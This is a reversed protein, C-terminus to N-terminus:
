ESAYKKFCHVLWRVDEEPRGAVPGARAEEKKEKAAAGARPWRRECFPTSPCVNTHVCTHSTFRVEQPPQRGNFGGGPPGRHLADGPNVGHNGFGDGGPQMQWHLAVCDTM